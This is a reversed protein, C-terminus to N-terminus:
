SHAKKSHKKLRDKDEFEMDCHRCKFTKTKTEVKEKKRFLDPRSFM